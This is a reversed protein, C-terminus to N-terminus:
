LLQQKQDQHRSVLVVRHEDKCGPEKWSTVVTMQFGPTFYATPQLSEAVSSSNGLQGPLLSSPCLQM